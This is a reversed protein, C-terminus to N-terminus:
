SGTAVEALAALDQIEIQRYGTVVLGSRRLATLARHVSAEAAGVFAALELQSLPIDIVTASGAPHGYRVALYYLIGALRQSVSAGNLAGRMRTAQRLKTLVSRQLVEEAASHGRRFATFALHDVVRADVTTAAVVTATRPSMDIASLEGILDGRGRIALLNTRGDHSNSVIKVYGGLLVYVDHRHDGENVLVEGPRFRRARGSGTIATRATPALGGIFSDGPWQNGEDAM